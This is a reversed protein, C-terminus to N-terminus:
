VVKFNNTKKIKVLLVHTTARHPDSRARARYTATASLLCLILWIKSLLLSPRSDERM